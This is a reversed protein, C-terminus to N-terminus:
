SRIDDNVARHTLIGGRRFFKNFQQDTEAEPRQTRLYVTIESNITATTQSNIRRPKM